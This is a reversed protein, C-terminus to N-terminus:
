LELHFLCGKVVGDRLTEVITSARLDCPRSLRQKMLGLLLLNSLEHQPVDRKESVIQFGRLQLSAHLGIKANQICVTSKSMSSRMEFNSIKLEDLRHRSLLRFQTREIGYIGRRMDARASHRKKHFRAFPLVAPHSSPTRPTPHSNIGWM